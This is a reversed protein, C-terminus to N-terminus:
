LLRQRIWRRLAWIGAALALAIIAIRGMWLHFRQWPSLTHQPEAMVTKVITDTRSVYATDRIIRERWLTHWRETTIRITDGWHTETIYISDHKFISDHQWKEIHCTDRKVVTNEIIRPTCGNIIAFGVLVLFIITVYAVVAMCGTKFADKPDINSPLWDQNYLNNM